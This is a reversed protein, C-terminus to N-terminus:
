NFTKKIIDILKKYNLSAGGILYGDIIDIANLEKINKPNVSGGYLIRYNKFKKSVLSKIYNINKSLEYNNPVLGTGISWVPEYAVIVKNKHKLNKLGKEIQKRLITKTKKKKKEALTEGICFIVELKNKFASKIKQNIKDNDDGSARNESHGIIVFKAGIDKIMRANIFGTYSGYNYNEHINQAGVSINTKKLNKIFNYLLTYPPCYIIKFKKNNTKKTFNIVKNINKLSKLDGHMKWNAIFYKIKNTM